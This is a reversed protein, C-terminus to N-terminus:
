GEECGGGFLFWRLFRRVFGEFEVRERKGRLRDEKEFYSNEFIFKVIIVM